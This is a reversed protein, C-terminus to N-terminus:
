NYIRQDQTKIQRIYLTLDAEADQRNNYPGQDQQERCAFYWESEINFFRGSRFPIAGQEGRRHPNM